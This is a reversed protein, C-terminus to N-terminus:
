GAFPHYKVTIITPNTVTESDCTTLYRPIQSSKISRNIRDDVCKPRAERARGMKIAFPESLFVKGMKLVVLDAFKKYIRRKDCHSFLNAVISIVAVTHSCPKCFFDEAFLDPLATPIVRFGGLDESYAKVFQIDKLILVSVRHRKKM